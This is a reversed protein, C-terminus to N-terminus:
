ERRQGHPGNVRRQADDHGVSNAPRWANIPTVVVIEAVRLGPETLLEDLVRDEAEAIAGILDESEVYLAALIDTLM